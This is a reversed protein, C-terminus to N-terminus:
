ALAITLVVDWLRPTPVLGELNSEGAAANHRASPSANWPSQNHTTPRLHKRKLGSPRCFLSPPLGSLLRAHTDIRSSDIDLFGRPADSITNLLGQPSIPRPPTQAQYGCTSSLPRQNWRLPRVRRARVRSSHTKWIFTVTFQHQAISILCLSPSRSTPSLATRAATDRTWCPAPIVPPVWFLPGSLTM